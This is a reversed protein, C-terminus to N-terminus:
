RGRGWMGRRPSAYERRLHRWIALNFSLLLSFTLGLLIMARTREANGSHGPQRTALVFTSESVAGPTTEVAQALTIDAAAAKPPAWNTQSGSPMAFIALFVILSLVFDRLCLRLERSQGLKRM